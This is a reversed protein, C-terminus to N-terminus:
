RLSSRIDRLKDTLQQRTQLVRELNPLTESVQPPASAIMRQLEPLTAPNNLTGEYARFINASASLSQSSLGRHIELERKIPSRWDMGDTGLPALANQLVSRQAASLRGAQLEFAITRFHTLFLNEAILAAILTGGTAVDHSFRVGAALVRVAHDKDGAAFEHYAYLANLRGLIRAKQVYEIPTEPGMQYDLGWDCAPLATARAMFELASRNKEILDRYLLDDYAATGDLISNMRKVEEDTLASDRMLAFAAWYRLAANNGLNTKEQALAPNATLATLSILLAISRISRM